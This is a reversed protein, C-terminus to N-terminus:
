TPVKDGSVVVEIGVTVSLRKEDPVIGEFSTATEKSGIVSEEPACVFPSSLQPTHMKNLVRLGFESIEVPPVSGSFYVPEM